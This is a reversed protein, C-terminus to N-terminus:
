RYTCHLKGSVLKLRCCIKLLRARCVQLSTQLLKAAVELKVHCSLKLFFEFKRCVYMNDPYRNKFNYMYIEQALIKIICKFNIFFYHTM